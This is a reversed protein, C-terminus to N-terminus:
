DRTHVLRGAPVAGYRARKQGSGYDWSVAIWVIAWLFCTFITLIAHLIHNPPAPPPALERVEVTYGDIQRVMVFGRDKIAALHRDLMRMREANDM